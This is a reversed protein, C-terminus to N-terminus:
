RALEYGARELEERAIAGERILRLRGQGVFSVITSPAGGAPWPPSLIAAGAADLLRTDIDGPASPPPDGSLNASTAVLATAAQLCLRRAAEHPTLRVAVCGASDVVRSSLEPAAPVLVSLPGPWFLAALPLIDQECRATDAMVLYLQELDGIVVPLPKGPGRQKLRVVERVASANCADCGLAFFTETPFVVPRGERIAIVAKDIQDLNM